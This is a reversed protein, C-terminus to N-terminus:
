GNPNTAAREAELSLAKLAKLDLQALAQEVDAVATQLLEHTSSQLEDKEDVAAGYDASQKDAAKMRKLLAALTRNYDRAIKDRQARAAYGARVEGVLREFNAFVADLFVAVLAAAGFVRNYEPLVDLAIVLASGGAVIKFAYAVFRRTRGKKELKYLRGYLEDIEKEILTPADDAM